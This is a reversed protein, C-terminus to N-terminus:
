VKPSGVSVSSPTLMLPLAIRLAVVQPITSLPLKLVCPLLSMTLAPVKPSDPSVFALPLPPVTVHEAVGSEHGVGPIGAAPSGSAPVGDGHVWPYEHVPPVAKFTGLLPPSILGPVYLEILILPPVTVKSGPM